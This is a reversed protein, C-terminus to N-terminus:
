AFRGAIHRQEFIKLSNRRRWMRLTISHLLQKESFLGPRGGAMSRTRRLTEM